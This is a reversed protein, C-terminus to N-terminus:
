YEIKDGFLKNQIVTLLFVIFLLVMSISSAYGMKFWEFGNQYLYYVLVQTKNVPGGQTMVYIQAFVQFSRIIQMTVVFFTVPSLLPITISWLQRFRSAGDIQAAEYLHAPIGQLGAIFLVM